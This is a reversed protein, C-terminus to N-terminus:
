RSDRDKRLIDRTDSRIRRSRVQNRLRELREKYTETRLHEQKVSVYLALAEEVLARKTKARSYKQAETLLDDNLEINTRMCMIICM